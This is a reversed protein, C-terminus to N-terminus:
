ADYQDSRNIHQVERLSSCSAVGTSPLVLQTLGLLSHRPEKKEEEWPEMRQENDSDQNMATVLLLFVSLV